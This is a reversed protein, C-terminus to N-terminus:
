ETLAQKLQARAKKEMRSVQVQTLGLIVAIRQQTLDRMYRLLIVQRLLPELRDIAERLALTEVLAGEERRDSLIDGLTRDQGPLAADLSDTDRPAQLAELVEEPQLGTERCLDSLRPSHGNERELRTQVQRLAFARERLTRSVKVPGDDRLFRRMEGAIKPVAYTSFAVPQSLDFGRIAKMLGICGLQFLDEPECGRGFFRRAVSWVLASNEALLRDMAPKDGAQAQLLDRRLEEKM